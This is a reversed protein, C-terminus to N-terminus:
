ANRGRMGLAGATADLDHGVAQAEYRRGDVTLPGHLQGDCIVLPAPALDRRDAGHV